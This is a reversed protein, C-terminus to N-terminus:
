LLCILSNSSGQSFGSLLIRSTPVRFERKVEEIFALMKARADTLGAPTRQIIEAIRGSMADSILQNM